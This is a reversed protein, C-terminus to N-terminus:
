KASVHIVGEAQEASVNRIQLRLKAQGDLAKVLKELAETNPAILQLSLQGNQWDARGPKIATNALIQSELIKLLQAPGTQESQQQATKLFSQTQVRVNVIRKTEPFLQKFLKETQQQYAQVQQELRNVQWWSKTVSLVMLGILLVLPWRWYKLNGRSQKKAAYGGTRLGFGRVQLNAPEVLAANQLNIQSDTTALALTPEVLAQALSMGSYEGTRILKDGPRTFSDAILWQNDQANWAVAFCDPVLQTTELGHQKLAELWKQMQVNAVVALTVEGNAQRNLPVLHVDELPQAIHEEVAYPLAGMWQGRSKGPVFLTLINLQGTPVWVWSPTQSQPLVLEGQATIYGQNKASNTM